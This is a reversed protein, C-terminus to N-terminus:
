AAEEDGQQANKHDHGRDETGVRLGKENQENDGEADHSGNNAM